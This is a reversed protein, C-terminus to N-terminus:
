NSEIEERISKKLSKYILNYSHEILEHLLDMDVYDNIEITNWHKKSMHYGPFIWEPHQERLEIVREADCKLNLRLPVSDLPMLCFIKGGIRFCLTVDDFPTDETVAKMSLLYERIEEVM